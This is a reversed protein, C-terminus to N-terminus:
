RGSQLKRVAVPTFTNSYAVLESGKIKADVDKSVVPGTVDFGVSVLNMQGIKEELTMKSMLSDIFSEEKRSVDTAQVRSERTEASYVPVASMQSAILLSALWYKVVRM